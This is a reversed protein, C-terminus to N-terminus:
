ILEALATAQRRLVRGQVSKILLHVQRSAWDVEVTAYHNETVLEGLRNPGAEEAQAWAHTMGSSTLEFLPYGGAPQHKYLAGIHRDGSLLVVGNAQTHRILELLRAQELPFNGWGEWGHGQAIVQVGSVILRVDAPMRLQAELWQWQARGLMTKIPDGDPVYREKGPANRQDTVKLASRFWRGDLLIIQVRHGAPGFTLAHYLGDRSRRPDNAPLQWFDVFAQKSAQKHAFDAGGDNLGYDHDDWIAVHPVTKRLQSFGPSTVLTQYASQLTDLQWPQKSAYVNDGGFIFLDPKDALIADWIPQPKTQDICSGFAIKSIRSDASPWSQLDGPEAVVAALPMGCGALAMLSAASAAQALLTRRDM